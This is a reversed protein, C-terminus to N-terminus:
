INLLLAELLLLLCNQSAITISVIPHLKTPNRFVNGLANMVDRKDLSVNNSSDDDNMLITLENAVIPDARTTIMRKITLM